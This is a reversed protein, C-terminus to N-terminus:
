HNADKNYPIPGNETGIVVVPGSAKLQSLFQSTTIETQEPTKFACEFCVMQGKPGYPRLEVSLDATPERECLYCKM